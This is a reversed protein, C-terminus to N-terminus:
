EQHGIVTAILIELYLLLHNFLITMIMLLRLIVKWDMKGERELYLINPLFPFIANRELIKEVNNM